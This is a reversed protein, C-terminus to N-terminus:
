RYNDWTKGLRGGRPLGSLDGSEFLFEDDPMLVERFLKGMKGGVLVIGPSYQKADGINESRVDRCRPRFM